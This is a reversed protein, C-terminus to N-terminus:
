KLAIKELDLTYSEGKDHYEMRVLLFDYKPAFWFYSSRKDSDNDTRIVKIADLKGLQTDIQEHGQAAFAYTKLKGGDAIHYAFNGTPDAKLDYRLQLQMSLRDLTQDTIDMRWPKQKVDNLVSMAQWDFTLKAQKKKGLISSQYHYSLPRIQSAQRTFTSQESLTAFFTDAYFKFRWQDASTQSLTQSGEVKISIGKKWTTSYTAQYPQFFSAAPAQAPSPSDAIIPLTPIALTAAVIIRRIGM